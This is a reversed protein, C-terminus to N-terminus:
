REYVVSRGGHENVMEITAFELAAEPTAVEPKDLSRVADDGMQGM